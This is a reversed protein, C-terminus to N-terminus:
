ITLDVTYVGNDANTLTGTVQTTGPARIVNGTGDDQLTGSFTLNLTADGELDDSMHYTGVLTGTLTGTPINKLSLNLFPQLTPDADTDYTVLVTNGDADIAVEGDTYAVMGVHLRMGKNDSSGQDVQGTVTLMGASVGAVTQPSINASSASNFGAFGLTLSKGISGDLGLYARRAAENSDIEGDSSCAGAAVAMMMAIAFSGLRTM